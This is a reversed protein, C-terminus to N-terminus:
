IVSIMVADESCQNTRPICRTQQIKEVTFRPGKGGNFVASNGASATWHPSMQLVGNKDYIKIILDAAPKNNHLIINQLYIVYVDGLNIKKDVHAFTHNKTVVGTSPGGHVQLRAESVSLTALLVIILIGLLYTIKM